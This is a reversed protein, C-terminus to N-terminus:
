NVDRLYNLIADPHMEGKLFKVLKLDENYILNVPIVNIGFLETFAISTDSLIQFDNHDFEFKQMFKRISDPRANSVLLVKIGKSQIDNEILSSIEYQCYECEPHFYVILVPGERLDESNFVNGELTVLSFSPLTKIREASDNAKVVKVIIGRILIIFIIGISAIIIASIVKKM